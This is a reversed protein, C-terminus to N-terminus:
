SMVNKKISTHMTQQVLDCKKKVYNVRLLRKENVKHNNQDSIKNITKNVNNFMSHFPTRTYFLKFWSKISIILSKGETCMSCYDFKKAYILIIFSLYPVM